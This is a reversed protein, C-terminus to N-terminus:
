MYCGNKLLAYKEILVHYNNFTVTVQPFFQIKQNKVFNEFISFITNKYLKLLDSGIMRSPRFYAWIFSSFKFKM